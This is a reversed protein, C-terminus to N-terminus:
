GRQPEALKRKLKAILGNWGDKRITKNFQNKYNGVMSSNETLVDFVRWSGNARHLRYDISLTETEGNAKKKEVKTHVIVGDTGPDEGEYSVQYNVTKQINNEYNRKILKQLLDRFEKLEEETRGDKNSGLSQDAIFDFDIMNDLLAGLRQARAPSPRDKLINTLETHRAQVYDQAEGASAAPALAMAIAFVLPALFVPRLRMM